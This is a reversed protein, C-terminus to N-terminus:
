KIGENIYIKYMISSNESNNLESFYNSQFAFVHM